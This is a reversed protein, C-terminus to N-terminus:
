IQGHGTVSCFWVLFVTISCLIIKHLMYKQKSLSTGQMLAFTQFHCCFGNFSYVSFLCLIKALPDSICNQVCLLGGSIELLCQSTIYLLPINKFFTHPIVRLANFLVMYGGLTAIQRLADMVADPLVQLINQPQKNLYQKSKYYKEQLYEADLPKRYLTYRLILGYLLPLGYLCLIIVSLSVDPKIVAVFFGLMYSAGINNSFCLLYEANEKSIRKCKYLDVVCKAGLPFGCLFGFFIVFVADKTNKFVPRLLLYFPQIFFCSFGSRLLLNMLVMFPFLSIIMNDFWTKLGIYAFEATKKAQFLFCAASLLLLATTLMNKRSIKM